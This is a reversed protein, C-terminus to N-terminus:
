GINTSEYELLKVELEKLKNINDSLEGIPRQLASTCEYVIRGLQAYKNDKWKEGAEQYDRQIARILRDLDWKGEECVEYGNRVLSSNVSVNHM